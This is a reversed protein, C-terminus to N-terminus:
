DKQTIKKLISNIESTREKNMNQLKTYNGNILKKATDIDCRLILSLVFNLDKKLVGKSTLKHILNKEFLYDLLLYRQAVDLGKFDEDDIWNRLTETDNFNTNKIETLWEIIRKRNLNIKTSLPIGYINSDVEDLRKTEVEIFDKLVAMPYKEEYQDFRRPFTSKYVEFPCYPNFIDYEYSLETLQNYIKEARKLFVIQSPTETNATKFKQSNKITLNFDWVLKSNLTEVQEKETM